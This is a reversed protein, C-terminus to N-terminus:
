EYYNGKDRSIYVVFGWILATCLGWILAWQFMSQTSFVIIGGFIAFFSILMGFNAILNGTARKM